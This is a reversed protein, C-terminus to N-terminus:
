PRHILMRPRHILAKKRLKLEEGVVYYGHKKVDLLHYGAMCSLDKLARVSKVGSLQRYTINM